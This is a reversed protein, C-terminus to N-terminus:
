LEQSGKQLSARVAKALGLGADKIAKIDETKKKDAATYQEQLGEVFTDFDASIKKMEEEKSSVFKDLKKVDMAMYEEIQKKKEDSCLGLNKPSCLPGLGDAFKKLEDFDRGGEYDELGSPDGHKITPFGQVGVTECLQKGGATCDVDAVLTTKHDKYEAMLKDWAPKM